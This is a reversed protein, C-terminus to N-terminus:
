VFAWFLILAAARITTWFFWGTRKADVGGRLPIIQKGAPAHFMIWFFWGTRKADVGGRLPIIQKGAPAHFM